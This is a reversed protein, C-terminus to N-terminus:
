SIRKPSCVTHYLLFRFLPISPHSPFQLTLCLPNWTSKRVQVIDRAGSQKRPADDGDLANMQSFDAEGVGVIIVSLPLGAAQNLLAQTAPMDNIVGDTIILLITYVLPQGAKLNALNHQARAVAASLVPAFLTPGSLHIVPLAAAYANLIGQVGPVELGPVLGFCHSVPQGAGPQGGFRIVSFCATNLSNFTLAVHLHWM